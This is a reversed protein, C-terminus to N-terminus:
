LVKRPDVWDTGKKYVTKVLRSGRWPTPRMEIIIRIGKGERRVIDFGERTEAGNFLVEQFTDEAIGDEKMKAQAHRSVVVDGLGPVDDYRYRM